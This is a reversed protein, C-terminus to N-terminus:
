NSVYDKGNVLCDYGNKKNPIFLHQVVNFLGNTKEYVVTIGRQTSDFASYLGDPM